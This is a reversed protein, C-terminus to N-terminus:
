QVTCGKTLPVNLTVQFLHPRRDVASSRRDRAQFSIRGDSGGMRRPGSPRLSSAGPLLPIRGAAYCCPWRPVPPGAGAGSAEDKLRTSARQRSVGASSSSAPRRVGANACSDNARPMRLCAPRGSQSGGPIPPTRRNLPLVTARSPSVHGSEPGLSAPVEGKCPRDSPIRGSPVGVCSQSRPPPRPRLAEV